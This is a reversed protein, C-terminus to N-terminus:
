VPNTMVLSEPYFLHTTVPFKFITGHQHNGCGSGNVESGKMQNSQLETKNGYCEEKLENKRSYETNAEYVSRNWIEQFVGGKRFQRGDEPAANHPVQHSNASRRSPRGIAYSELVLM